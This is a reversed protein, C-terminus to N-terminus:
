LRLQVTTAYKLEYFWLVCESKQEQSGLKCELSHCRQLPWSTFWLVYHKTHNEFYVSIIEKFVM